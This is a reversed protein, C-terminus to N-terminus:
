KAATVTNMSTGKVVADQILAALEDHESGDEDACCPSDVDPALGAKDGSVGTKDRRPAPGQARDAPAQKM